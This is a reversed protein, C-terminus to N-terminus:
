GGGGWHQASLSFVLTAFSLRCKHEADMLRHLTKDLLAHVDWIQPETSVQNLTSGDGFGGFTLSSCFVPAASSPCCRHGTDKLRRLLKDLLVMKGSTVILRDVANVDAESGRFDTEASDFLFQM